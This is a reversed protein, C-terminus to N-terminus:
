IETSRRSGRASDGTAGTNVRELRARDFAQLSNSRILTRLDAIYDAGRESYAKLGGALVHGDLTGGGDRIAERMGRFDEYAYSVNLNFVYTEISQLLTDFRRVRFRASEGIGDPVMGATKHYTREGFLANGATAFQSMGWESEIAAQALVLSPPVVDLRRILRDLNGETGYQAHMADLWRRVPPPLDGNRRLCDVMAIVRRRDRLISENVQLAMPLVTAFFMAKRREVDNMQRLDAPMRALLLRPVSAAGISVAALEYNIRRYFRTLDKVSFHGDLYWEATAHPDSALVTPALMSSDNGGACAVALPLDDASAREEPEESCAGLLSLAVLIFGLLLARTMTSRDFYRYM